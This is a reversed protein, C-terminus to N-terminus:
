GHSVGKTKPLWRGKEDRPWAMMEDRMLDSQERLWKERQPGDEGFGSNSYPIPYAYGAVWSIYGDLPVHIAGQTPWYTVLLCFITNQVRLKPPDEYPNGYGIIEGEVVWRFGVIWGTRPRELIKREWVVISDSGMSRNRELVAKVVVKKGMLQDALPRVKIKQKGSRKSMKLEWKLRWQVRKKKKKKM